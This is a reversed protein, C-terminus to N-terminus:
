AAPRGVAEGTAAAAGRWAYHVGIAAAMVVLLYAPDAYRHHAQAMVGAVAYQSLALLLLLCQLARAPSAWGFPLLILCAALLLPKLLHAGRYLADGLPRAPRAGSVEARLGEPLEELASSLYPVGAVDTNRKEKAYLVDNPGAALMLFNDWFLLAGKPYARFAELAADRLLRDAAAAGYQQRAAAWIMAHNNAAAEEIVAQATGYYRVKTTGYTEVARYLQRTAPGNEPRILRFPHDPDHAGHHRAAVYAQWFLSAGALHSPVGLSLNSGLGRLGSMGCEGPIAAFLEAAAKEGLAAPVAAVIFVFYDPTPRLFLEKLLADPNGAHTGFLAQPPRFVWAAPQERLFRSVCDVLARSAPGREPTILPRPHDYDRFNRSWTSFYTEAFRVEAQSESQVVGGPLRSAHGVWLWDAASWALLLLCYLGAARLPQRARRPATLAALPLFVWFVLGAAPRTLAMAFAALTAAWLFAPPRDEALHRSALFVFLFQLFMSLQETMVMPAYVWTMPLATAVIATALALRRGIPFLTLYVLLPLALGMVAQAAALGWFTGFRTVGTLVLFLPYGPPRHPTHPELARGTLNRANDLYQASDANFQLHTTGLWCLLMALGLALLLAVDRRPAGAIRQPVKM